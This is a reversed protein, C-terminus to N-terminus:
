AERGVLVLDGVTKVRFAQLRYLQRQWIGATALADALANHPRLLEVRYRRALTELDEVEPARGAEPQRAAQVALWREVRGTDVWLFEGVPFGARRLFARDFGVKHGVIIHDRCFEVLEPIVVEAPPATVVDVPRIRHIPVTRGWSKQRPRVLRHFTQGVLIRNGALKIAGVELVEDVEAWLGTTEIDLVVFAAEALLRDSSFRRGRGSVQRICAALKTIM